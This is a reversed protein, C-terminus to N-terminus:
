EERLLPTPQMKRAPEGVNNERVDREYFSRLSYQLAFLNLETILGYESLM